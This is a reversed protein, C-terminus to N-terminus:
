FALVPRVYNNDEFKFMVDKYGNYFYIGWASSGSYNENSSWFPIDQLASAGYYTLLTLSNNLESKFIYITNLDRMSPLFWKGKKCFDASCNSTQYANVANAAYTEGNCTSALIADTNARGDVGCSTTVTSSDACNELNPTDCYGSSWSMYESGASGDKKVNTLALALRNVVDFVVGIPKKGAVLGSAVTGDGYLIAGLSITNNEENQSLCYVKSTDTPCKVSMGEVCDTETKNYGLSACDPVPMCETAFSNASSFILGLTTLLIKTNTKRM